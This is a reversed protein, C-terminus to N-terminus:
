LPLSKFQRPLILYQTEELQIQCVCIKAFFSIFAITQFCSELGMITLEFILDHMKQGSKLAIAIVLVKALGM